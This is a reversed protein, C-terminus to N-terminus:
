KDICCGAMGSNLHLLSLSFTAAWKVEQFEANSLARFVELESLFIINQSEDDGSGVYAATGGKDILPVADKLLYSYLFGGGRNAATRYSGLFVWDPDDDNVGGDMLGHELLQIPRLRAVRALADKVDERAAVKTKDAGGADAGAGGLEKEVGVLSLKSGLGLEEFVERKAAAFPSEGPDIFGGVPSMTDGPIAYKRQQFVVFKGEITRVVVNVHNSEELFLWDDIVTSGDESKVTHVDCRAFKTEGLTRVSVTRENRWPTGIYTGPIGFQPSRVGNASLLEAFGTSEQFFVLLTVLVALSLVVVVAGKM